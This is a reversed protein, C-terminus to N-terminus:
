NGWENDIWNGYDDRFFDGSAQLLGEEPGLQEVDVEPTKYTRKTIM